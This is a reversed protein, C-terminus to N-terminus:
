VLQQLLFFYYGQMVFGVPSWKGYGGGRSDTSMLRKLGGSDKFFIKNKNNTADMTESYSEVDQVLELSLGHIEM